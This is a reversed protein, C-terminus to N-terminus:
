QHQDLRPCRDLWEESDFPKDPGFDHKQNLSKLFLNLVLNTSKRLDLVRLTNINFAVRFLNSLSFSNEIPLALIGNSLIGNKMANFGFNVLTSEETPTEEESTNALPEHTLIKPITQHSYSTLLSQILNSHEHSQIMLQYPDQSDQFPDDPEHKKSEFSDSSSSIIPVPSRPKKSIFPVQTKWKDRKSLTKRFLNESDPNGFLQPTTPLPQPTFSPSHKTWFTDPYYSTMKNQSPEPFPSPKSKSKALENQLSKLQIKLSQIEQEKQPDIRSGTSAQFLLYEHITSIRQQIEACLEELHLIRSDVSVTM